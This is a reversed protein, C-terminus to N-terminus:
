WMELGGRHQPAATREQNNLVAKANIAAFMM